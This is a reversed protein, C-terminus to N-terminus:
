RLSTMHRVCSFRWGDSRCDPSRAAATVVNMDDASLAKMGCYELVALSARGDAWVAGVAMPLGM